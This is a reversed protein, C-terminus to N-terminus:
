KDLKLLHAGESNVAALVLVESTINDVCIMGIVQATDNALRIGRVGTSGRGMSRAKEENFRICKGSKLAMLIDMSGNTLKAELLQDGERINIAKIGNQRPRSYSELSTKKIVGKNRCMLIYNSNIYDEDKLNDVNIFAMVKDESPINILNQIARGKATKSGEPIEYVKLWFCKGNESFFLMYNHNTAIFIHELFDEDRSSAGKHGVGGRNQQRYESLPTRKIYGLHSITIVVKENPIMDEISLDASSYEIQTRREDGFKEKVDKFDEVLLSLRLDENNLIENLSKIKEMLSQHEQKIKDRELGTLKQLRLDLIAKAQIESLNYNNILGNRAEEPTHSKKILAIIEDLNDLAVLLGQLIHARKEAQKLDFKTKRILVEHRHAVFLQIIQKLNLLQPRGKVLAINNISFSSQLQTYKFLKNLVINPIADRKLVYVIRM